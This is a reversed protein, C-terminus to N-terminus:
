APRDGPEEDTADTEARDIARTIRPAIVVIGFGLGIVAALVAIAAVILLDTV